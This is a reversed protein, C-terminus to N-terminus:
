GNERELWGQKANNIFVTAKDINIPNRMDGDKIWTSVSVGDYYRMLEKINEGNARGGIFIPTDNLNKKIRKFLDISEEITPSSVFIGDAFAKKVMRYAEKETPIPNLYVGSAEFADAYVPIKSELKKKLDLIEACQGEVMGCLGISVGTYLYEIRIFDAGSAEAVCMSAVGDWNVLIGLIKNPFTNKVTQALATMYSITHKEAHQRVPGDHMNQLIFGDYGLDVLIKAEEIVSNIIKHFPEGDYLYSGPLPHPQLMALIKSKKM